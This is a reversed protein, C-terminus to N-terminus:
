SKKGGKGAKETLIFGQPDAPNYTTLPLPDDPSIGAESGYMDLVDMNLKKTLLRM